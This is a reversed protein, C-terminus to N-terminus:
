PIKPMFIIEASVEPDLYRAAFDSIEKATISAFDEQITLPWELQRPHRSSLTMVSDLWYRNTQKMDKVVDFHSIQLSSISFRPDFEIWV